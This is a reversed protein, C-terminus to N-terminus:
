IHILSLEVADVNPTHGFGGIFMLDKRQSLRYEPTEVDTYIYAPIAKVRIDPSINHIYAEEISSPYYAMDAKRMLSLEIARWKASSELLALDKTIEYQREERLFHLDHGYYIIRASTVQRLFDIYKVSIHPRNLFVYEIQRANELVWEKWHRDRICM